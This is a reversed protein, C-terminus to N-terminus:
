LGLRVGVAAYTLRRDARGGEFSNYTQVAGGTVRGIEAALKVLPLNLSADVFYNTRSLSQEAGPLTATGSFFGSVTATADASLDYTEKGMGAAVGFILLSKGVVLRWATTNAQADSVTLTVNNYSGSIDTSPLDRKLFSASVGPLVLTEELLGLRAGYGIQLNKEPTISVGEVDLTPVYTASLLLDVGGVTGIGLPFGGWIGIAADATPLGIFQEFTPLVRRQAGTTSSQFNPVDPILGRIANVRVGISFHGLGGVTSSQGLIANGGALSISLQPAVFQFVDFAQTCADQAATRPDPFAGGSPCPSQARDQGLGEAPLLAIFLLGFVLALGRHRTPNM